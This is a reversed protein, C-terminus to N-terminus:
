RMNIIADLALNLELVNITEFGWIGVFDHTINSQVLKKVRTEPLGRYKAVRPVQLMAGVRSIHPDLGSASNLVMEAPVPLSTSLAHVAYIKKIRAETRKMLAKSSPALNNDGSMSADYNIGSFRGHFYKNATFQQAILESGIVKGDRRILSGNAQYPFIAQSVGMIFFPYLLGFLVAYIIFVRFSIFIKQM